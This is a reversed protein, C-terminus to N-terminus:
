EDPEARISSSEGLDCIVLPPGLLTRFLTPLDDNRPAPKARSGPIWSCLGSFDIAQGTNLRSPPLRAAEDRGCWRAYRDTCPPETAADHPPRRWPPCATRPSSPRPCPPKSFPIGVSGGRATPAPQRLPRWGCASGTNACHATAGGAPAGNRWALARLRQPVWGDLDRLVSATQCFGFYGRWGTWYLSLQAITQELNRGPQRRILQRV